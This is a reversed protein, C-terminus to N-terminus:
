GAVKDLKFLQGPQRALARIQPVLRQFHASEEHATLAAQDPWTEIFVFHGPDDQNAFLEYSICLPETLTEAVLEHLLPTVAALQDPHFYSQAVVKLM